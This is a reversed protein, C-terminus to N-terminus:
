GMQGSDLKETPKGDADSSNVWSGSERLEERTLLPDVIHEYEFSTPADNNEIIIIQDGFTVSKLKTFEKKLHNYENSFSTRSTMKMFNLMRKFFSSEQYFNPEGSFSRIYTTGMDEIIYLGGYNLHPYFIDLTLHIHDTFHSGDDIIIDFPGHLNIFEKLQSDSSQDVVHTSIRKFKNFLPKSSLDIGFIRSRRFYSSWMLLSGSLHNEELHGGIGIELIKLKKNKRSKFYKSYYNIYGHFDKDSLFKKDLYHL